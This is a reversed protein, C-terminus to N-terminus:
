GFLGCVFDIGDGSELLEMGVTFAEVGLGGLSIQSFSAFGTPL